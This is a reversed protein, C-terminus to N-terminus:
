VTYINTDATYLSLNAERYGYISQCRAVFLILGAAAVRDILAFFLRLALFEISITSAFTGALRGATFNYIYFVTARRNNSRRFTRM